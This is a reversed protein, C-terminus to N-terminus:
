EAEDAPVSDIIQQVFESIEAGSESAEKQIELAIDYLSYSMAEGYAYFEDEGVTIVEYPVAVYKRAYNKEAINTIAVTYTFSDEDHSFTKECKVDRAGQYTGDVLEHTLANDGLYVEPQVLIGYRSKNEVTDAAEFVFRLAAPDDLRIQAGLNTLTESTTSTMISYVAYGPLVFTSNEDFEYYVRENDVNSQIFRKGEVNYNLTISKAETCYGTDVRGLSGSNVNIVVDGTMTFKGRVTGYGDGFGLRSVDAGGIDVTCSGEWVKTANDPIYAPGLYIATIYGGNVAIHQDGTMNSGNVGTHIAISASDEATTVNEDYTVDYGMFNIHQNDKSVKLEVDELVVDSQYYYPATHYLTGGKLTLTGEVKPLLWKNSVNLGIGQETVNVTGLLNITADTLGIRDIRKQIAAFSKVAADASTGTSLDSGDASIYLEEAGDEFTLATFVFDGGDFPIEFTDGSYYIADGSVWGIFNKVDNDTFTVVSNAEVDVKTEEGNVVYTVSAPYNSKIAVDTNGKTLTVESTETIEQVNDGNTIVAKMGEGLTIKIKGFSTTEVDAGEPLGNATVVYEDGNNTYSGGAGEAYSYTGIGMTTNKLIVQLGNLVAKSNAKFGGRVIKAGSQTGDVNIFTKGNVTGTVAASTDGGLYIGSRFWAHEGVNITLDGSITSNGWDFLAFHEVKGDLTIVPSVAGGNVIVQIGSSSNTSYKDKYGEGLTLNLSDGVKFYSNSSTHNTYDTIHEFTLAGDGKVAVTHRGSGRFIQAGSYVEGTYPDKGTVVLSKGEAVVLEKTGTYPWDSVAGTVVFTGSNDGLAEYAASFTAFPFEANIGPYTDKGDPGVYWVTDTYEKWVPVLTIGGAPMAFKQGFDYREEGFVFYDVVKGSAAFDAGEVTLEEGVGYKGVVITNDGDKYAFDALDEHTSFTINSVGKDLTILGNEDPYVRVYDSYVNVEDANDPTAAFKVTNEGDFVPTLKGEYVNIQYQPNNIAAYNTLEANNIILVSNTSNFATGDKVAPLVFGANTIEKANVILAANTLTSTVTDRGAFQDGFIANDVKGKNITIVTDGTINGEKYSGLYVSGVNAGNINIEVNGTLTSIRTGSPNSDRMGAFLASVSGANLDFKFNGKHTSGSASYGAMTGAMNSIFSSSNVELGFDGTRSGFQGLYMGMGPTGSGGKAGKVFTCNETLTIKTGLGFFWLEDGESDYRKFTIDDVIFESGATGKVYNPNKANFQLRSTDDYGKITVKKSGIDLTEMVVDGNIYVTGDGDLANIAEQLTAYVTKGEIETASCYVVNEGEAMVAFPIMSVALLLSLLFCLIKRQM